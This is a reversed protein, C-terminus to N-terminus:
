LLSSKERCLIGQIPQFKIKKRKLMYALTLTRHTGDILRFTGTPCDSLEVKSPMQVTLHQFAEWDFHYQIYLCHRFWDPDYKGPYKQQTLGEFTYGKEIMYDAIDGVTYYKGGLYKKPTLLQSSRHYHWILSYFSEEDSVDIDFFCTANNIKNRLFDNELAPTRNLIRIADYHSIKKM